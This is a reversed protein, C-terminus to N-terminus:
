EAIEVILVDEIPRAIAEIYVDVEIRSTFCVVDVSCVDESNMAMSEIDFHEVSCTYEEYTM